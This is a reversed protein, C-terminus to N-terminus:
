GRWAVGLEGAVEDLRLDRTWLQCGGIVISALIKADNWGIGRGWLRRAEVMQRTEADTALPPRGLRTLDWLTRDRDRLTGMSLEGIILPHTWVEGDEVMAMLLSNRARWHHVWINSDVVVPKM